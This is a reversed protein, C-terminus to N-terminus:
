FLGLQKALLVGGIAWGAPGLAALTGAEAAGAAATAGGTAAASLPAGTIVAETAGTVAADTLAGTAAEAALPAVAESAVMGATPSLEAVALDAINQAAADTSAASLPAGVSEVAATMTPETLGTQAIEGMPAEGSLPAPQNLSSIQKGVYDYGKEIGKDMGQVAKGTAYTTGLQTLVDPQQKGGVSSPAADPTKYPAVEMPKGVQAERRKREEETEWITNNM